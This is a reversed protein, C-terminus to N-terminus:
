AVRCAGARYISFSGEQLDPYHVRDFCFKIPKLKESDPACVVTFGVDAFLIDPIIRRTRAYRFKTSFKPVSTSFKALPAHSKTAALRRLDPRRAEAM